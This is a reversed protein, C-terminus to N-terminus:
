DQSARVIERTIKIAVPQEADGTIQTPLVKGLLSMFPGPNLMAQVKLYEVAGGEQEALAQLIMDKLAANVKNPTGKKRGAGVPKPRGKPAGM